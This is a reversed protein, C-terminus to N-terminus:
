DALEIEGRRTQINKRKHLQVQLSNEVIIEM